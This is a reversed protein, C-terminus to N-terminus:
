NMTEKLFGIHSEAKKPMQEDNNEGNREPNKSMMIKYKSLMGANGPVVLKIYTKCQM